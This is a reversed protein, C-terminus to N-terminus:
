SQDPEPYDPPARVPHSVPAASAARKELHDLIQKIVVPDEISAIAYVTGEASTVFKLTLRSCGM